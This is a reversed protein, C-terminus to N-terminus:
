FHSKRGNLNRGVRLGTHASEGDASGLLRWRKGWLSSVAGTVRPWKEARVQGVLGRQGTQVVVGEIVGVDAAVVVGLKLVLVEPPFNAEQSFLLNIQNNIRKNQCSMEYQHDSFVISFM